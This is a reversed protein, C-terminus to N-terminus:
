TRLHVKKKKVDSRHVSCADQKKNKMCFSGHLFFDPLGMWFALMKANYLIQLLVLADSSSCCLFVAFVSRQSFFACTTWCYLRRFGFMPKQFRCVNLWVDQIFSFKDTAPSKSVSTGHSKKKKENKLLPAPWRGSDQTGRVQSCLRDLRVCTDHRCCWKSRCRHLASDDWSDWCVFMNTLSKFRLEWLSDFVSFSFMKIYLTPLEIGSFFTGFFCMLSREGKILFSLKLVRKCDQKWGLIIIIIIIFYPFCWCFSATKFFFLMHVHKYSYSHLFFLVIVYFIIFLWPVIYSVHPLFLFLSWSYHSSTFYSPSFDLTWKVSVAWYIYLICLSFVFWVFVTHRSRQMLVLM